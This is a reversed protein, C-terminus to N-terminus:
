EGLVEEIGIPICIVRGCYKSCKEDLHALKPRHFAITEDACVADPDALCDDASLGSPVDLAYVVAKAENIIRAAKRATENLTGHFGTGYIADIIIDAEKIVSLDIEEDMFPYMQIGMTECIQWNKIADETQPEGELLFALVSAGDETLKRAAVFGDGGNNGKGCFVIVRKGSVTHNEFIHEAAGMGANEMMNYYSLGAEAARREIGKMEESTVAAGGATEVKLGDTKKQDM